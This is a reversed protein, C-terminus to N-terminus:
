HAIFIGYVKTAGADLLARRAESFSAGTTFVDDLVIVSKNKILSSEASISNKINIQRLARGLEAQRSTERNKRLADYSFKLNGYSLKQIERCLMECQNFGRARREKPSMPMPIIIPPEGEFLSIETINELLEEYLFVALRRRVAENNKYKLRRILFRILKNHYDFLIWVNKIRAPSHPLLSRMSHPELALLHSLKREEPVIIEFLKQLLSM